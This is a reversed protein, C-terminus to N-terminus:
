VFMWYRTSTSKTEERYRQLPGPHLHPFVLCATCAERVPHTEDPPSPAKPLIGSSFRRIHFSRAFFARGHFINMM